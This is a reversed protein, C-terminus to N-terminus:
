DAEIIDDKDNSIVNGNEDILNGNRDIVNDHEDVLDGKDNVFAKWFDKRFLQIVNKNWDETNFRVADM